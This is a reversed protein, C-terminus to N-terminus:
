VAVEALIVGINWICLAAYWVNAWIVLRRRGLWVCCGALGLAILKAVALAPLPGLQRILYRIFPSAESAGVYLGVSTTVFDGLQLLAFLAIMTM